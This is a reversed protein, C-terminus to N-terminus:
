YRFVKWKEIRQSCKKSAKITVPSNLINDMEPNNVDIDINGDDFNNKKLRYLLMALIYWKQIPTGYPVRVM